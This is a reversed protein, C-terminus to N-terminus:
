GIVASGMPAGSGRRPPTARTMPLCCNMPSMWMSCSSWTFSTWMSQACARMTEISVLRAAFSAPTLKLAPHEEIAALSNAMAGLTPAYDTAQATAASKLGALDARLLGVEARLAEFAEAAADEPESM